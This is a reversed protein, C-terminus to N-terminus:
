DVVFLKAGRKSRLRHADVGTGVIFSAGAVVREPSERGVDLEIEGEIVFVAHGLDCYHDGVYDASYEIHRIRLSGFERARMIATGTEGPHSSSEVLPWDLIEFPVGPLFPPRSM